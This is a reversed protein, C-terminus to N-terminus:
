EDDLMDLMNHRVNELALPSGVKALAMEQKRLEINSLAKGRRYAIAAPSDQTRIAERLAHDRCGLAAAIDSVPVFAGALEEILKLQDESLIM